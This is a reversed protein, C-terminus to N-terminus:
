NLWLGAILSDTFRTHDTFEPYKSTQNYLSILYYNDTTVTAYYVPDDQSQPVFKALEFQDSVKVRESSLSYDSGLYEEVLDIYEDIELKNDYEVVQVQIGTLLEAGGKDLEAMFTTTSGSQDLLDVQGFDTELLFGEPTKESVIISFGSGVIINDGDVSDTIGAVEPGPNLEEELEQIRLTQMISFAGAVVLSVMLLFVILLVQQNKLGKQKPQKASQEVPKPAEEPKHRPEIEADFKSFEIPRSFDFETKNQDDM